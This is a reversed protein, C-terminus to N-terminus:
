PGAVPGITPYSMRWQSGQKSFLLNYEYTGPQNSFHMTATNGSTSAGIFKFPGHQSAYSAFHTIYQNRTMLSMGGPEQAQFLEIVLGKQDSQCYSELVSKSGCTVSVPVQTELIDSFDNVNVYNRVVSETQCFSADTLGCSVPRIAQVPTPSLNQPNGNGLFGYAILLLVVVLSIVGVYALMRNPKRPKKMNKWQRM